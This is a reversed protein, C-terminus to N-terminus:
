SKVIHCQIFFTSLCRTNLNQPKRKIEYLVYFLQFKPIEGFNIKLVYFNFFRKNLFQSDFDHLWTRIMSRRQLIFFLCLM